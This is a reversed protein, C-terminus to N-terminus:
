TDSFYTFLPDSNVPEFDLTPRKSVCANSAATLLVASSMEMASSGFSGISGRSRVVLAVIEWDPEM